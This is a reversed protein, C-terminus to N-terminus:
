SPKVGLIQLVTPLMNEVWLAYMKGSPHLQDVALLSMDKGARRSFPTVDIHNAHLRKSEARNILNFGDIEAAIRARDRDKAFPTVSWDPISLVMVCGARGAAHAIARELLTRIEQQYHSQDYGRYQDNVGIQLSVLTYSYKLNAYEIAAMLESTTWGTRAIVKLESVPLGLACLTNFLQNPWREDVKVGEGITYSDGLALFRILRNYM